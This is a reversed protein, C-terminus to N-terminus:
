AEVSVLLNEAAEFNMLVTKRSERLCLELTGGVADSEVLEFVTGPFLKRAALWSLFDASEEVVQVLYYTGAACGSLAQASGPQIEGSASPIPAGHPDRVPHGLMEDMRNVFRESVVHELEEAEEHVDAWDMGVIDVLFLEMLRHRRIINLAMKEGLKTLAAGRRSQYRVLEREALHKMMQTVTGPTVGLDDAIVGLNVSEEPHEKGRRYLAKLYNEITRSNM